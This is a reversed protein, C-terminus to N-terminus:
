TITEIGEDSGKLKMRNNGRFQLRAGVLKRWHLAGVAQEHEFFSAM